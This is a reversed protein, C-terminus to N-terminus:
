KASSFVIKEIAASLFPKLLAATEEASFDYFSAGDKAAIRFGTSVSAVPKIELGAKIADSLQGALSKALADFDKRSLQVEHQKADGLSAVVSAILSVLDNSAYAKEVQEVLLRDLQTNIAKKLSLQVDRSAQQLSSRASQDRTDIERQAKELLSAAEKKAERILDEAQAKADAIIQAAEKQAVEIGDKRISAVLDQIQQAM